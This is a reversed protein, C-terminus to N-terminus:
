GGLQRYFTLYHQTVAAPAELQPYHGITPLQALYDLRCGLEQYREVMHQGSVPDVSGNILALPIAGNVLPTLWRQRHQRRDNIYTIVNHFLHKGSHQNILWWHARLEDDSPQTAPGFVKSFSVAFQRYGALRNVLGGLPGLLLKQTVLARHTEPFLGGNLFCCSSYQHSDRETQRALLEQAVSVSYDHVLLHCNDVGRAVLLAEVIDAQGHITYTRRNPKASFGFGLLDPALLQFHRGLAAWIPQWDWSSSPFGHLLLLTPKSPNATAHYFIQRGCLSLYDGGAGWHRASDLPQDTSM